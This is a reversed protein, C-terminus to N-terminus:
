PRKVKTLKCNFSSYVLPIYHSIFFHMPKLNIFRGTVYMCVSAGVSVFYNESLM